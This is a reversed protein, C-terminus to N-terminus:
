AHNERFKVFADAANQVNGTKYDDYGRLIKAHLQEKSMKSADIGMPANFLGASDSLSFTMIM